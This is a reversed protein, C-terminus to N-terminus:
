SCHKVDWVDLNVWEAILKCFVIYGLTRHLLLSWGLLCGIPEGRVNLKEIRVFDIRKEPWGEKAIQRDVLLPDSSFTYSECIILPFASLRSKEELFGDVRWTCDDFAFIHNCALLFLSSAFVYPSSLRNPSPTMPSCTTGTSSISAPLPRQPPAPLSPHWGWGSSSGWRETGGRAVIGKKSGRAKGAKIAAGIAVALHKCKPRTFIPLLLFVSLHEM